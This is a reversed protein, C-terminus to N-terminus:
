AKRNIRNLFPSKARKKKQKGSREIQNLEKQINESYAAAYLASSSLVAAPLIKSSIDSTKQMRGEINRVPVGSLRDIHVIPNKKLKFSTNSGNIVIPTQGGWWRSMGDIDRFGSYGRKNLETMFPQRQAESKAGYSMAFKRFGRSSGKNTKKYAKRMNKLGAIRETESNEFINARVKGSLGADAARRSTDSSFSKLVKRKDDANVTAYFTKSWDTKEAPAISQIQTGKELILDTNMKGYKYIETGVITGATIVGAALLVTGAIKLGKKINEHGRESKAYSKASSVKTTVFNKIKNDHRVGWKMGKVGHHMLYDESILNYM